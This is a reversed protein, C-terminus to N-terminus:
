ALEGDIAATLEDPGTPSALKAFASALHPRKQAQAAADRTGSGTQVSGDAEILARRRYSYVLDAAAPAVPRQSQRHQGSQRQLKALYDVHVKKLRDCPADSSGGGGGGSSALWELKCQSGDVPWALPCCAEAAAGGGDSSAATKTLMLFHKRAKTSHPMSLVLECRTGFGEQRAIRAALQAQERTPYFQLCARAGDRLVRWLGSFFCRLGASADGQKGGKGADAACIWQLASVSIAGDFLSSRAPVGHRMDSAFMGVGGRAEGSGGSSSGQAIMQPNVDCAVCFHGAREVVESSLGGGCGVDLVLAPGADAPLALLDLCELTLEEQVHTSQAVATYREAESPRAYFACQAVPVARTAALVASAAEPRHDTGERQRRAKVPRQQAPRQQRQPSAAAGVGSPASEESRRRRKPM